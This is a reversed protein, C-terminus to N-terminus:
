PGEGEPDAAVVAAGIDQVEGVPDVALCVPQETGYGGMSYTAVRDAAVFLTLADTKLARPGDRWLDDLSAGVLTKQWGRTATWEAPQPATTAPVARGAWPAGGPAMVDLLIMAAFIALQDPRDDLYSAIRPRLLNCRRRWRQRQGFGFM